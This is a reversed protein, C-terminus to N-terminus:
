KYVYFFEEESASPFLEMLVEKYRCDHDMEKFGLYDNMLKVYRNQRNIVAIWIANPYDQACNKLQWDLAVLAEQHSVTEDCVFWGGILFQEDGCIKIQDWIYLKPQGNKVLLFSRRKTKLWWFYHALTHIESTDLMNQRNTPHNRSKLYHNIDADSVSRIAYDNALRQWSHHFPMLGQVDDVLKGTEMFSVVNAPGEYGIQVKSHQFLLQVRSLQKSVELILNALNVFEKPELSELFFYQGIDDLLAQDNDQNEVLSFLLSPKQLARLSYLTGGAAGLYFDCWQFEFSLDTKGRLFEIRIGHSFEFTWDLLCETETMFPGLVAKIHVKKQNEAFLEAIYSIVGKLFRGNGSGGLGILLRFEFNDKALTYYDKPPSILLYQPGLLLRCGAEVVPQYVKKANVGRWKFDLVADATHYRVIDDLALVQHGAQHFSNEWSQSLSYHDVVIWDPSLSHRKFLSLCADADVLEYYKDVNKTAYEEQYVDLTFSLQNELFPTYAPSPEDLIFVTQHGKEHLANALVLCRVLHGLGSEKQTFIRFVVYM